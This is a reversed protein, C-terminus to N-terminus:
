NNSGLYERMSNNYVSGYSNANYISVHSGLTQQFLNYYLERLPIDPNKTIEDLLCSTFRNTMWVGLDNNYIDAKSTENGNAATLMLLGPINECKEAVSGSYCAEILCLM